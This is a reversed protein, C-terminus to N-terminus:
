DELLGPHNKLDENLKRLAAARSKESAKPKYGYDKGLLTEVIRIGYERVALTPHYLLDLVNQVAKKPGSSLAEVVAERVATSRSEDKVIDLLRRTAKSHGQAHEEMLKQTAADVGEENDVGIPKATRLDIKERKLWDKALKGRIEVNDLLLRGKIAYFGVHFHKLPKGRDNGKLEQEPLVFKLKRKQLGFSARIPKGIVPKTRPAKRQIYRFGIYDESANGERWQPGFKIISNTGGASGDFAHFYTEVFTFTAFDETEAVPSIYGGFDQKLDPVFTATVWVDGIWEARHRAGANGVIELREDFWRIGQGKRTKIRYPIRDVFDKAQDPQRFDYRLTVVDKELATVRGHFYEDLAKNDGAGAPQPTALLAVLCALGLVGRLRGRGSPWSRAGRSDTPSVDVRRLEMAKPTYERVAPRPLGGGQGPGPWGM